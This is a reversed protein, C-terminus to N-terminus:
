RKLTWGGEPLQLVQASLNQLRRVIEVATYAASPGVEENLRDAIESAYLPELAEGLVRLIHEEYTSM